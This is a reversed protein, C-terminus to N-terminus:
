SMLIEMVDAWEKDTPYDISISRELKPQTLTNIDYMNYYYTAVDSQFINCTANIDSISRIRKKYEVDGMNVYANAFLTILNNIVWDNRITNKSIQCTMYNSDVGSFTIGYADKTAVLDVFGATTNISTPVPLPLAKVIAAIRKPAALITVIRRGTITTTTNLLKEITERLDMAITHTLKM